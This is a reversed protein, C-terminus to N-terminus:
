EGKETGIANDAINIIEDLEEPGVGHAARARIRKLAYLLAGNKALLAPITTGGPDAYCRNMNQITENWDGM